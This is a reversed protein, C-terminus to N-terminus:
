VSRLERVSSAVEISEIIVRSTVEFQWSTAKFGSPLRFIQGSTRLERTFVHVGDAYVKFLAYQDAALSQSLATNAVPNLAISGSPITFKVKAAGMNKPFPLEFLKSKWTYASMGALVPPNFQYIKSGYILFTDGTWFDSQIAVLNVGLTLWSFRSLGGDIVIGTSPAAASVHTGVYATGHRVARLAYPDVDTVWDEKIIIEATINTIGGTNVLVLGEPSAYVVGKLSPVISARSLCPEMQPITSQAMQAPHVGSICVPRGKTAVVLTQGVVGLGVIPQDVSISYIAPWAHPRYPETFYVDSGTWGAFIGNPMAVIGKLTTPPENWNTSELENNGSVTSDSLTDAYGLTAIPLEVVLFYTAVGADSTITRYIRTHTINRGTTVSGGPATVTVNWTDDNKATLVVPNSPAGEEGFGTVWTYLYARTETVTAVGGSAVVAPASAPAPVGLYYAAQGNQIRTLSNYKPNVSPSAFYYREFSDNIVPTRLVDTDIDAFEMWTSNGYLAPPKELPDNPIRFVKLAAPNTLSRIEASPRFGRATGDGLFTNAAYAAADNPLLRDAQAPLMGGFPVIKLAVM